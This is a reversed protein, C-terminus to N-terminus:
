EEDDEIKYVVHKKFNKQIKRRDLSKFELIKQNKLKIKVVDTDFLKRQYEYNEINAYNFGDIYEAEVLDSPQWDANCHVLSYRLYSVEPSLEDFRVEIHDNNTITLVPPFYDNGVLKVQLSKFAPDFIQTRTDIVQASMSGFTCNLLIAAIFIRLTGKKMFNEHKINGTLPNRAMRWLINM